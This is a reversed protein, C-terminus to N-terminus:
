EVIIKFTRKQYRHNYIVIIYVGTELSSLDFSLTSAHDINIVQKQKRGLLDYVVLDKVNTTNKLHCIAESSYIEVNQLDQKPDKLGLILPECGSISDLNAYFLEAEKFFCSLHGAGNIDPDGSPANIISLSGVGEVWVANNTSITNSGTPSFYYHRYDNGDALTRSRISDLIFYGADDPFPTIPNRMHISDGEALSFDYLLYEEIGSSVTTLYVKKNAVEENLLFTRSIYHFGDLIKHTKGNVITDGDTYYVDTLCGFHCSTIHWENFDDLLPKYDQSWAKTCLIFAIIFFYKRTM